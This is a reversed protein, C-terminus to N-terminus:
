SLRRSCCITYNKPEPSKDIGEVGPDYEYVKISTDKLSNKFSSSGAGYDLVETAKNEQLFSELTGIMKGAM